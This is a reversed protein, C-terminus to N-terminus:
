SVVREEEGHDADEGGHEHAAAGLVLLCDVLGLLEQGLIPSQNNRDKFALRPDTDARRRTHRLRCSIIITHARHHIFQHFQKHQQHRPRLKNIHTIFNIKGNM